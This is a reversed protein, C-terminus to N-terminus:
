RCSREVLRGEGVDGIRRCAAGDLRDDVASLAESGVHEVIEGDRRYPIRCSVRACAYTALIQSYSMAVSVRLSAAVNLGACNVGPAGPKIVWSSSLEPMSSTVSRSPSASM